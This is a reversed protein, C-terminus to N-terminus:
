EFHEIVKDLLKMRNRMGTVIHTLTEEGSVIMKRFQEKVSAHHQSNGDDLIAQIKNLHQLHRCACSSMSQVTQLFDVILMEHLPVSENSKDASRINSLATEAHHLAKRTNKELEMLHVSFKGPKSGGTTMGGMSKTLQDLKKRVARLFIDRDRLHASRNRQIYAYYTKM